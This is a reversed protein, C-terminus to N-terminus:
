EQNKSYLPNANIFRIDNFKEHKGKKKNKGKNEGKNEKNETDDLSVEVKIFYQNKDSNLTVDSKIGTLSISVPGIKYSVPAGIDLVSYQYAVLTKGSM